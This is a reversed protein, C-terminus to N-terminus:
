CCDHGLPYKQVWEPGQWSRGAAPQTCAMGWPQPQPQCLQPQPLLEAGLCALQKYNTGSVYTASSWGQGQNPHHQHTCTWVHLHTHTLLLIHTFTHTLKYTSTHLYLHTHLHTHTHAHIYTHMPTYSHIHTHTHKLSHTHPHLYTHTYLHTHIYPHTYTHTHM